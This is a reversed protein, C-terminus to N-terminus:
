ELAVVQSTKILNGIDDTHWYVDTIGALVGYVSWSSKQNKVLWEEAVSQTRFIIGGEYPKGPGDKEISTGDASYRLGRDMGIKTLHPTIWTGAAVEDLADNYTQTHGVTFLM